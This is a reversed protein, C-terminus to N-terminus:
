QAPCVCLHMASTYCLRTAQAASFSLSPSLPSHSFALLWGKEGQTPVGSLVRVVTPGETVVIPIGVAHGSLPEEEMYDDSVTGDRPDDATDISSDSSGSNRRRSQTPSSADSSPWGDRSGRRFSGGSANTQPRHYAHTHTLICALLM